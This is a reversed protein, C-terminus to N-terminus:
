PCNGGDCGFIFDFRGSRVQFQGCADEIDFGFTGALHFRDRENESEFIAHRIYLLGNNSYCTETPDVLGYRVDRDIQVYNEEGDLSLILPYEATGDIIPELRLASIIFRLNIIEGRAGSTTIINGQPFIIRYNASASDYVFHPLDPAAFVPFRPYSRWPEDNIYAGAHDRGSESYEPLRPDFVEASFEERYCGNFAFLIILASLFHTFPGKLM